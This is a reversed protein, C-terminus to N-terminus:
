MPNSSGYGTKLKSETEGSFRGVYNWDIHINWLTDMALEEDIFTKVALEEKKNLVEDLYDVAYIHVDFFRPDADILESNAENSMNSKLIASKIATDIFSFLIQSCKFDNLTFM